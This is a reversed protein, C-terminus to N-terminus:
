HDLTTLLTSYQTKQITNVTKATEYQFNHMEGKEPNLSICIRM